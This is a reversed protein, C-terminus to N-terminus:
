HHRFLALVKWLLLQLKLIVQNQNMGNFNEMGELFGQKASFMIATFTLVGIRFLYSRNINVAEFYLSHRTTVWSYASMGVWQVSVCVFAFSRISSGGSEFCSHVVSM